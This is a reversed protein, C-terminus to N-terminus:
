NAKNVILQGKMSIHGAGCPVSCFFPFTGSKDAVFEVITEKGPDIKQNIGFDPLSFGHTVDASTLKLKVKDGEKVSITSPMFEWQKATITASFEKVDVVNTTTTTTTLIAASTSTTTSEQTTNSQNQQICGSIFIVSFLMTLLLYKM